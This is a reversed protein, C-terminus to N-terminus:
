DEFSTHDPHVCDSIFCAYSIYLLNRTDGLALAISCLVMQLVTCIGSM